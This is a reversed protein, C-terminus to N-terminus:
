PLCWAKRGREDRCRAVALRSELQRLARGAVSIAVDAIEAVSGTSIPSRQSSVVDLVSQVLEPTL